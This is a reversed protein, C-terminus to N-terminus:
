SSMCLNISTNEPLSQGTVNFEGFGPSSVAGTPAIAPAVRTEM